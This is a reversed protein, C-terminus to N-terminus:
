AIMQLAFVSLVMQGGGCQVTLQFWPGLLFCSTPPASKSAERGVPTAASSFSVKSTRGLSFLFCTRYICPITTEEGLRWGLM